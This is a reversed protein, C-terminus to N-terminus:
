RCRSRAPRRSAAASAAGGGLGGGGRERRRAPHVVPEPDGPAGRLARGAPPHPRGRRARDLRPDLRLDRPPRQARRAPRLRAHLRQVDPVHRRVPHLRRPLRDREVRRGDRARPRRVLREPRARRGRLRRRGQRGDPEIRSLDAAGGFLEPVPGALAQIADQSANRTAVEEGDAYTKLGADWGDALRGALGPPPPAGRGPGPPRVRLRRVGRGVGRRAGRRGPGGRPVPAARRGPRLLEQRPGLRLGGERAPGRRRRAAPRPGEAHGPPQPQRLRHPDPGRDPEAPRGRPGDDIAEAIAEVDNGDEVRQAHWGYAEFRAPSTRRGPWRRDARRAPHPQRRLARRAQRPPPPRRAVGGGVRDGGPPRRRLLAHVDLPRRHRPRAPQVGRRPPARRDGHRGRERLGPRAARDDGRRGADPRVGPPGADELGM